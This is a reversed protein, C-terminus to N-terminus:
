DGWVDRAHQFIRFDGEANIWLFSLFDRDEKGLSVQLFARKIDAMVGVQHLRFKLLVAPIIEILNIGKELCQNLSPSGPERASADFVPRLKSTSNEKV